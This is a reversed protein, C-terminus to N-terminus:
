EDNDINDAGGQENLSSDMDMQTQERWSQM